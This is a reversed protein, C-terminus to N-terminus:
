VEFQKLAKRLKELSRYFCMKVQSLNNQTLEAIEEFSLEEWFRLKIIEQEYPQLNALAFQVQQQDVETIMQELIGQDETTQDHSEVELPIQQQAKSSSKYVQNRLIVFLWHKISKGQFQYKPFAQLAKFFTEATAEEASHKDQTLSYAYRYVDAFFWDYITAFHQLDGHCLQILQEERDV